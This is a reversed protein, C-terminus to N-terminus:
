RSTLEWVIRFLGTSVSLAAIAFAGCVAEGVEARRSWWVSRWGRGSAVAAVVCAVGLVVAGLVVWWRTTASWSPVTEDVLVVWCALGAGRLLWRATINRYSGAALLLAGGVFFALLGAGLRDLAPLSATLLLYVAVAAVAAIALAAAAVIRQGRDVLRAVMDRSIVMRGRRGTPQERASWASVSLRELDVLLQDPVDIALMPVVRSALMALVLLVSWVVPPSLHFVAAAAAAVFLLVGAVMWVRHPEDHRSGNGDGARDDTLLSRGAAATVAAALGAVGWTVPLRDPGPQSMFAFAAAAAFAPAVASRPAALRGFPLVGVVAAVLLVNVALTQPTGEPLRAAYSGAAVAIGAAVGLWVRVGTSLASASPHASPTAPRPVDARGGGDAVLVDGTAVSTDALPVGTPLPEGLGTRLRPVVPLDAQRAYEAALDDASTGAPVVVDVIGRPGLVSLALLDDTDV